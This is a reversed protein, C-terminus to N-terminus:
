NISAVEPQPHLALWADTQDDRVAKFLEQAGADDLLVSSGADTNATGTVPTTGFKIAEQSIDKLQTAL